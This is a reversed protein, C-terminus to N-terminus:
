RWELRPAPCTAARTSNRSSRPSGSSILDRTFSSFERRLAACGVLRRVNPLTKLFGSCSSLAPLSAAELAVPDASCLDRRLVRVEDLVRAARAALVRDRQHGLRAAPRALLEAHRELM